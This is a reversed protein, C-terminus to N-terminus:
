LSSYKKEPEDNPFISPYVCPKAALHYMYTVYELHGGIIGAEQYECM